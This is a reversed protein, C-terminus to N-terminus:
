WTWSLWGGHADCTALTQTSRIGRTYSTLVLPPAPEQWEISAVFFDRTAAYQDLLQQFCERAAHSFQNLVFSHYLCLTTQPPIQSLVEPLLAVADGARVPLPNAQAVTIAEQLYAARDRQEPWILARLWLTEAKNYVDIPNLDLGMRYAIEPTTESLPLRAEGHLACYLRVSSAPDGASQKGYDFYYKDWLLNLGASTGIEVLALPRGGGRQAVLHFTPLLCACRRVENTQVRRTALLAAIAEAHHLCFDRFLPFPDHCADLPVASLSPYYAALPHNIGGLLLYHIAGFLLNPVPRAQAHAALALLEEDGAVGITLRAYLPSAPLCEREGFRRFQFALQTLSDIM